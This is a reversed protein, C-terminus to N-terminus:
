PRDVFVPDVRVHGQYATTRYGTQRTRVIKPNRYEAPMIIRMKRLRHLALDLPPNKGLGTVAAYDFFRCSTKLVSAPQETCSVATPIDIGAPCPMCYRCGTCKVQLLRNYEDKVQKIIKLEETTLAEPLAKCAANINEAIHADQNM